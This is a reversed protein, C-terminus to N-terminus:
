PERRVASAVDLVQRSKDSDATVYARGARSTSPRKHMAAIRPFTTVAGLDGIGTWLVLQVGNARAVKRQLELFPLYNAKGLPNDLPLVGGGSGARDNTRTEARLRALVCFLVLSATLNEGGSWKRMDAVPTRATLQDPSPKLVTAKFGEPVAAETAMWLLEAPDTHINGVNVMRDILDSIRLEIQDHTPNNKAAVDLFRHHDWNGIGAPLESLASARRIVTLADSVLQTMRTAVNDKHQEVQQLQQAIAQTRVRLDHALEDATQAVRAVSAKDRFMERLQHVARGHEDEAVKAFKDAGAWQRLADARADLKDQAQALLDNATELDDVLRTVAARIDSDLAPLIVDTDDAPEIKVLRTAQDTLMQARTAEAVAEQKASTLNQEERNRKIECLGLERDAEAALREADEQDVPDTLESDQRRRTIAQQKAEEFEQRATNFETNAEGLAQGAAQAEENARQAAAGRSAPDVADTTQALELARAQVEDGNSGWQQAASEVERRAEDVLGRLAEEPFERRLQKEAFEVADGAAEVTMDTAVPAPLPELKAQWKGRKETLREQRRTLGTVAKEAAGRRTEARQAKEGARAIETPIAQLRLKGPAIHDREKESLAAVTPRVAELRIAHARQENLTRNLERLGTRLENVHQKTTAQRQRAQALDREATATRARLGDMGDDPLDARFARVASRLTDDTTRQRDLRDRHEVLTDHRTNRQALEHAAAAKDHQAPTPGLVFQPTPHGDFVGAPSFVVAEDVPSRVFSAVHNLNDTYVIVGDVAAPLEAIHRAHEAADINEALYRWGSVATIGAAELEDLVKQVQLRPPLLGESRLAHIAREGAAIAEKLEILEGEAAAIAEDLITVADDAGHDLDVVDTQLLTRLRASDALEQSRKSLKDLEGQIQSHHDRAASVAEADADLRTAAREIEAESAEHKHELWEVEARADSAAKALRAEASTLSEEADLVGSEVLQQRQKDFDAIATHLADQESDLQLRLREAAEWEEHAMGALENHTEIQGGLDTIEVQAAAVDRQLAGALQARAQDVKDQLPRAERTKEDLAEQKAALAQKRRQLQMHHEVATWATVDLAAADKRAQAKEAAARASKLHFDAAKMRYHAARFRWLDTTSRIASLVEDIVGIRLQAQDRRKEAAAAEDLLARKFQAARLREEDNTRGADDLEQHATGLAVVKSQAQECFEKEALYIPRKRIEAATDKLLDRVPEVRQHDGVFKLLYRVFEGPSDIGAFLGEIGGEAANVETFYRFLEPDFRRERLASHWETISQSAVVANVGQAALGNIHNCFKDRDYNGRTRFTFPLTDLTAGDIDPDPTICWWTRRLRDKGKTNYDTPRIRGEWEYVAGTLLLEGEPGVWEAVVHATDDPLILDELYRHKTRTALFDRRDPLILALLLSLMTTKGAGNRLWVIADTPQGSIDTLDVMLNSFRNDAVGCSDLYLRRLRFM